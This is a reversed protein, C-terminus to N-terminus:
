VRGVVVEIIGTEGDFDELAKGIICGPEYLIKDMATAYGAINSAVLRDGKSIKGTVKCPVRGQLGVAVVFEGKCESNMLHAPNTSVIGAIAPTHSETSVTVENAGGFILVTGAEYTADAVYNEALDAYRAATATGNIVGRPVFVGGPANLEIADDADNDMYLRLRQAEGSPNAYADIFMTDGSGGFQDNPWSIRGGAKLNITNASTFIERWGPSYTSGQDNYVAIRGGATGTTPCTIRITRNTGDRWTEIVSGALEFASVIGTDSIDNNGAYDWTCKATANDYNFFGQTTLWTVFQATTCTTNSGAVAQVAVIGMSKTFTSTSFGGFKDADLGSGAGDNGAHWVKNKVAGNTYGGYFLDNTTGDLGFHGAFDGAVRFTMFADTNATVQNIQLTNVDNVVSGLSGAPLNIRLPGDTAAWTDGVDSRLFGSSDVGDFLDADLGSAAGDNGANWVVNGNMLMGSNSPANFSFLDDADNTMTFTMRTAEGGAPNQLTISAADGTGGFANNPFAIGGTTGTSVTLAGNVALNGTITGGTTTLVYTLYNDTTLVVKSGLLLSNISPENGNVEEFRPGWWQLKSTLDTSYYLYTRHNQTTASAAMKYDTYTLVKTGTVSDYLGGYNVTSADGNAHLYGVSLYWRDKVFTDISSAIFYPNTNATNDSLNLTNGGTDAGHYFSGNTTDSTRRVWVISRYPKSGDVGTITKNWGGDADNGADNNTVTWLLGPSLYPTDLWSRTSENVAGNVTFNGGFLGVANGTGASWLSSDAFNTNYGRLVSTTVIAGTSDVTIRATGNGDAIIINCNTTAISSGNNSGLVINYNGTTISCGANCGLGINNIGSTVGFLAASGLSTNGGANANFSANFGVATNGANSGSLSSLAGNGLATNRSGTAVACLAYDGVAVNDSGAYQSLAARGIAVNRDGLSNTCLASAGLITNNAGNQLSAGSFIGVATNGSGLSSRLSGCGVAVNCQGIENLCLASHGVAVNGNGTTNSYLSRYGVAVNGNGTLNGFGSNLAQYGVATNSPTISSAGFLAGAVTPTAAVLTGQSGTFGVGQSGTFGISGTFGTSGTFGAVTSASGTYGISGTFGRSGVYGLAAFAGSSGTFGVVTSASGTYGTSGYFGRSGVFGAVAASGTYGPVTSASGTYGTGGTNGTFVVGNIYLGTDDVKIRETAGAGILVTNSLTSSGTLNGLITNNTGTTISAGASRGIAINNSGSTNNGLSNCGVAINHNGTTNATLAFCGLAINNSGATNTRLTCLGLAINNSGLTNECLARRGIAINNCGAPNVLALCGIATNDNGTTGHLACMGVAFNGFSSTSSGMASFGAAFNNCGTKMNQM